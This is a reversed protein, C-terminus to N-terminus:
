SAGIGTLRHRKMRSKSNAPVYEANKLRKFHQKVEKETGGINAGKNDKM